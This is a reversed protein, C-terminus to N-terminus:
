QQEIMQKGTKATQIHLNLAMELLLAKEPAYSSEALLEHV